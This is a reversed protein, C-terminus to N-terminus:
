GRTSRVTGRRPYGDVRRGAADLRGGPDEGAVSEDDRETGFGVAIGDM